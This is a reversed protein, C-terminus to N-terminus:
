SVGLFPAQPPVPANAPSLAPTLSAEQARAQLYFALALSPSAQSGRPLAWRGRPGNEQIARCAPPQPM